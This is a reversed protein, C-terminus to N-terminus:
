SGLTHPSQHVYGLLSAAATYVRPSQGPKGRLPSPRSTPTRRLPDQRDAKSTVGLILVHHPLSSFLHALAHCVRAHDEVLQSLYSAIVCARAETHLTLEVASTTPKPCDMTLLLPRVNASWSRHKKYAIWYGGGLHTIKTPIRADPLTDSPSPAYTPHYHVTYGMHHLIHARTWNNSQLPSETLSLFGPTHSDILSFIGVLSPSNPGTKQTNLIQFFISVLPASGQPYPTCNPRERARTAETKSFSAPLGFSYDSLPSEPTSRETLSSSAHALLALQALPPPKQDQQPSGPPSHGFPCQARKHPDRRIKYDLEPKWGFTHM